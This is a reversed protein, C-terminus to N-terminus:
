TKAAERRKTDVDCVALVQVDKQNLCFNVHGRSQIGMGIFGVGLRNAAADKKDDGLAARSVILPLATAAAATGLFDRRSVRSLPTKMNSRRHHASQPVITSPLARPPPSCATPKPYRLM